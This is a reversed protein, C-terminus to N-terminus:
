LDGIIWITQKMFENESESITFVYINMNRVIVSFNLVKRSIISRKLLQVYM